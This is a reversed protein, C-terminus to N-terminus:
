QGCCKKFKKGSGCPCPQNRGVSGKQLRTTTKRSSSGSIAKSRESQIKQALRKLSNQSHELFHKWGSCLRSLDGGWESLLYRSFSHLRTSKQRFFGSPRILEELQDSSLCVIQAATLANEARLNDIAKEVNTWATNQTLIAGIVVEFATEAPWWNRPGFHEHLRNFIDLIISDHQQM